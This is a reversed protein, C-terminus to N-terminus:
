DILKVGWCNSIIDVYKSFVLLKMFFIGYFLYDYIILCYVNM